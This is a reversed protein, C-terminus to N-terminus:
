RPRFNLIMKAGEEEGAVVYWPEDTTKLDSSSCVNLGTFIKRDSSM